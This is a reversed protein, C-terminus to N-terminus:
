GGNTTYAGRLNGSGAPLSLFMYDTNNNGFDFIRAWPSSGNDTVRAEITIATCGTVLNIPLALFGSVGDLVLAGNTISAGGQLTGNAGAISDSADSNFTYRHTMNTAQGFAGHAVLCLAATLAVRLRPTM